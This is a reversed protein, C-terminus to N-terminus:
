YWSVVKSCRISLEVFGSYDVVNLHSTTIGRARADDALICVQAAHAGLQCITDASLAHYTGDEILLIIDAPTCSACLQKLLDPSTKNLTHLIM